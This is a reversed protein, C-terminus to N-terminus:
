RGGSPDRARALEELLAKRGAAIRERRAARAEANRKPVDAFADRSLQQLEEDTPEADPDALNIAM